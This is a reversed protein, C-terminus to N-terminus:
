AGHVGSGDFGGGLRGVVTREQVRSVWGDAPRKATIVGDLRPWLLATAANTLMGIDCECESRDDIEASVGILRDMIMLEALRITGIILFLLFISKNCGLATDKREDYKKGTEHSEPVRYAEVTIDSLWLGPFTLSGFLCKGDSGLASERLAQGQIGETKKWSFAAVSGEQRIM